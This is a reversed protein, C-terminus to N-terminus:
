ANTNPAMLSLTPTIPAGLAVFPVEMAQDLGWMKEAQATTHEGWSHAQMTEAYARVEDRIEMSLDEDEAIDHAVAAQQDDELRQHEFEEQTMDEYTQASTRLGLPDTIDFELNNELAMRKTRAIGEAVGETLPLSSNFPLCADKILIQCEKHEEKNLLGCQFVNLSPDVKCLPAKVAAAHARRAEANLTRDRAPAPTAKACKPPPLMSSNSLTRMSPVLGRTLMIVRRAAYYAPSSATVSPKAKTTGQVSTTTHTRQTIAEVGLVDFKARQSLADGRLITWPM